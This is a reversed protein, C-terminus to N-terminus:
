AKRKARRGNTSSSEALGARLLARAAWRLVDLADDDDLRCVDKMVVMADISLTLALAAQLRRWRAKPLTKRIPEPAIELWHMRRGERVVPVPNGKRRAELWTDLYVRLATRMPLEEEFVISNLTDLLRILRAEPDAIRLQALMADVPVVAPGLGAVEILLADQTPFYRYATARSVKAADAAEPVTPERGQRFLAAAADVLAKRTRGKQNARPDAQRPRKMEKHYVHRM